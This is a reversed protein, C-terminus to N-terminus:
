AMAKEQFVAKITDMVIEEINGKLLSIPYSCTDHDCPGTVSVFLCKPAIGFYSFIMRM